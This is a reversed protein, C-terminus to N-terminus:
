RSQCDARGADEQSDTYTNACPDTNCVTGANGVFIRYPKWHDGYASLFGIRVIPHSAVKGSFRITGVLSFTGQPITLAGPQFDAVDEGIEERPDDLWFIAKGSRSAGDALTFSAIYDTVNSVVKEDASVTGTLVDAADGKGFFLYGDLGYANPRKTDLLLNKRGGNAANCANASRWAVKYGTNTTGWPYDDNGPNATTGQIGVQGSSNEYGAFTVLTADAALSVTVSVTESVSAFGDSVTM